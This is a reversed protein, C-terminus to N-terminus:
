KDGWVEIKVVENDPLNSSTVLARGILDQMLGRERKNISRTLKELFIFEDVEAFQKIGKKDYYRMEM